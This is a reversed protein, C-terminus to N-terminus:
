MKSTGGVEKTGMGTRFWAGMGLFSFLMILRIGVRPLLGLPPILLLLSLLLCGILPCGFRKSWKLARSNSAGVPSLASLITEGILTASIAVGILIFLQLVALTLLALPTGIESLFLARVATTFLLCALIGSWLSKWYRQTLYRRATELRSPIIESVVTTIFLLFLFSPVVPLPKNAWARFYLMPRRRLVEPSLDPQFQKLIGFAPANGYDASTSTDTLEVPFSEGARPSEGAWAVTFLQCSLITATVVMVRVLGAVLQKYRSKTHAM